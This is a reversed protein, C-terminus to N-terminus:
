RDQDGEVENEDEVEDGPADDEDGEVPVPASDEGGPEDDEEDFFGPEPEYDPHQEIPQEADKETM